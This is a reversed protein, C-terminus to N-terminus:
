TLWVSDIVLDKIDQVLKPNKPNFLASKLCVWNQKYTHRFQESKWSSRIRGSAKAQRVTKNFLSKELNICLDESLGLGTAFQNRVYERMAPQAM